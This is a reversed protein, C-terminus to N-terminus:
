NGFMRRPCNVADPRAQNFCSRLNVLDLFRVEQMKGDINTFVNAKRLDLVPYNRVSM